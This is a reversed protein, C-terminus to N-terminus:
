RNQDALRVGLQERDSVFWLDKGRNAEGVFARLSESQAVRESIDGLVVLRTGYTVFKQVLEGAIRTRLEFFDDGLRTAPIAVIKAGHRWAEGMLDTADRATRLAPGEASCEFVLIGQQIYVSGAM